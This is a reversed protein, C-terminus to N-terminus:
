ERDNTKGGTIILRYYYIGLAGTPVGAIILLILPLSM